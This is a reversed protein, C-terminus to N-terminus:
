LSDQASSLSGESVKPFVADLVCMHVYIRIIYLHTTQTNKHALIFLIYKTLTHIYMYHVSVYLKTTEKEMTKSNSDLSM